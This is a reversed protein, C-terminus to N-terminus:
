QDYNCPFNRESCNSCCTSSEPYCSLHCVWWHIKIKWEDWIKMKSIFAFMSYSLTLPSCCGEVSDSDMEFVTALSSHSHQVEVSWTPFQSVAYSVSFKYSSVILWLPNISLGKTLLPLIFLGAVSEQLRPWWMLNIGRWAAFLIM